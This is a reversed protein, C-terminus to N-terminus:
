RKVREPLHPPIVWGDPGVTGMVNPIPEAITVVTSNITNGPAASIISGLRTFQLQRYRGDEGKVAGRPLGACVTAGDLSYNYRGRYHGYDYHGLQKFAGLRENDL